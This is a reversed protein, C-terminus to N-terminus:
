ITLPESAAGLETPVVSLARSEPPWSAREGSTGCGSSTRQGPGTGRSGGVHGSLGSVAGLSGRVVRAGPGEPCMDPRRPAHGTGVPCLGPAEHAAGLRAGLRPQSGRPAGRPPSSQGPARGSTPSSALGDLVLGGLRLLWWRCFSRDVPRPPGAPAGPRRSECARHRAGGRAHAACGPSPVHRLFRARGASPRRHVDRWCSARAGMRAPM